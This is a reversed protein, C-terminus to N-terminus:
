EVSDLIIGKEFGGKEKLKELRIRDVDSKSFGLQKGLSYTVELIDALEEANKAKKFEGFEESLKQIKGELLEAGQAQHYNVKLGKAKLIEPYNDRVLKNYKRHGLKDQYKSLFEPLQSHLPDPMSDLTFWGWSDFKDPEGLAVKDKDILVKFDLSIWHTEIGDDNTRHVDRHGLFETGLVDTSYEEMIERRLTEDVREKHELRGAGIDWRGREDRAKQGRKAMLVNDNGDHCFFVITNGIHDIGPKM